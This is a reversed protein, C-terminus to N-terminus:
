EFIAAVSDRGGGEKVTRLEVYIAAVGAAAVLSVLSNLVATVVVGAAGFQAAIKDIPYSFVIVAVLYIALLLLLMWRHNETLKMSRSFADSFDAREAVVVPGVVFWMLILFVGPVVLLMLGLGMALGSALGVAFLTWFSRMAARLSDAMTPKRGFLDEVVTHTVVGQLLIGCVLSAVWGSLTVLLSNFFNGEVKFGALGLAVLAQPLGYLLLSALLLTAANAGVAGFTREIVRGLDFRPRDIFVSSM